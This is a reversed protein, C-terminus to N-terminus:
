RPGLTLDDFLLHGWGGTARDILEVRARQGQHASVDVNRVAMIHSGTGTGSHIEGVGDVVIRVQLRAADRGGGVRYRLVPRDITFTPSTLAGTARDGRVLSSALYRGEYPGAMRQTGLPGGAPKSGFATGLRQWGAYTGSEFDFVRRRGAAPPGAATKPVLVYRPRVRYGTVVGPSEDSGLHHSFKYAELLFDYDPRREPSTDLVIAAYHQKYARQRITAPFPLGARTVDNIGMQHYGAAKGVLYPYFPHYPMLIPGRVNKLREMLRMGAARWGAQPLHKAPRYLQMTLQVALAVGVLVTLGTLLLPRRAQQAQRTLDAGAVGAFIAAFYFGPIYANEVAWQTAFGIASIAVGVIVLVFWYLRRREDANPWRRQGVWRVLMVLLWLGIVAGVAPFLSLLKLETKPWIRDWYLDHGQHLKFIYRWFWGQTLRDLVLVTGGAVVGVVPVLVLLRRWHLLLMAAGAFLIFVSSTQKTLFGLALLVGAVVVWGIRQHHYRLLYLSSSILALYLSDNRVLDYWAGTHPFSSAVLGVALVGWLWGLRRNDAERRVASFAVGCAVFFSLLSILRGLLYSVGFVRGLSGVVFPYLPTYLYSIFDASPEAYLPQGLAIRLAHGLMGGEMWELDFPYTLRGFFIRLLLLIHASAALAAVAGGIWPLLTLM